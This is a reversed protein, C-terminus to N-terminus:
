KLFRLKVLSWFMEYSTKWTLKTGLKESWVTPIELTKFGKKKLSYLLDVDFAWKKIIIDNLVSKCANKKLLKAGCQTDNFNLGFFSKVFLNFVMSSFDRNFTRPPDIISGNMRRSAIICDYGNIKLILDYFADAKTAQDADVFGIFKGSALKFGEIIAAGKSGVSGVDIIKIQKFKKAVDQVVSLTNDKCGNLVVIIEFNIGYIKSFFCAYNNLTKEKRLRQEENYAPIIISLELEKSLKKSIKEKVIKPNNNRVMM